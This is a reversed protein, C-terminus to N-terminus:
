EMRARLIAVPGWFRRPPLRALIAAIRRSVTLDCRGQKQPLSLLPPSSAKGSVDDELEDGIVKSRPPEPALHSEQAQSSSLVSM